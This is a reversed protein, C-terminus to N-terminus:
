FWFLLQVAGLHSRKVRGGDRWNSLVSTKVLLGRHITIGVGYELRSVDAEWTAVGGSGRINTFRIVDGRVAAYLRPHLRIKTEVYGAHSGLPDVIRPADLPPVRWSNAVYEGRFLWRGWSAEADIGFARQDDDGPPADPRAERVNDAVFVGRAASVGVTFAPVPHWAVRGAIQGGGNNDGVRPDSLSGVTYSLAGEFAPPGVRIQVGTDWREAAITPVGNHPTPDGVPYSVLWGRGKMKLLDDATAPVADPRVSTLYQYTQPSGILPNDQPYSRRAFTGFVPPIRGAQIDVLGSALPSVRVYWAYPTVGAGTEARIETLFAIRDTARVEITAGARVRRIASTEYDTYTFWGPDDSGFTVSADGGILLRGGALTVPETPWHQAVAGDASSLWLGAALAAVGLPSSSLRM